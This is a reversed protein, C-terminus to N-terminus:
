AICIVKISNSAPAASFTITAANVGTRTIATVTTSNAGTSIVYPVLITDINNLNHTVTLTTSTGDGITIVAKNTGAAAALSTTTSVDTQVKIVHSTTNVWMLGVPKTVPDTAVVPVKFNFTNVGNFNHALNDRTGAM